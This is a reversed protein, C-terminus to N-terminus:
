LSGGKGDLADGLPIPPDASWLLYIEEAMEGETWVAVACCLVRFVFQGLRGARFPDQDKESIAGTIRSLVEDALRFLAGASRYQNPDLAPLDNLFRDVAQWCPKQQDTFSVGTHPLILGNLWLWIARM